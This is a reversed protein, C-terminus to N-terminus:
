GWRLPWARLARWSKLAQVLWYSSLFLLEAARMQCEVISCWLRVWQRRNPRGSAKHVQVWYCAVRAACDIWFKVGYPINRGWFVSDGCVCFSSSNCKWCDTWHSQSALFWFTRVLPSTELLVLMKTELSKLTGGRTALCVHSLGPKIDWVGWCTRSLLPAVKKLLTVHKVDWFVFNWNLSGELLLWTRVALQFFEFEFNSRVPTTNATIKLCTDLCYLINRHARLIFERRGLRRCLKRRKSRVCNRRKNTKQRPPAFSSVKPCRRLMLCCPSYPAIDMTPQVGTGSAVKEAWVLQILSSM